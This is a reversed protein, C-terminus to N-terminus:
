EETITKDLLKSLKQISTATESAIIAKNSPIKGNCYTFGFYGLENTSTEITSIVMYNAGNVIMRNAMKKDVQKFEDITGYWVKNKHLYQPFKFRSLSLNQYDEDISEISDGDVEYTMTCHVFPLGATNSSGNHLEIVWARDAGTKDLVERLINEVQPQINKRISMQEEHETAREETVQETGQRTGVRTAAVQVWYMGFLFLLILIIARVVKWLGYKEIMKITKEVFGIQEGELAM